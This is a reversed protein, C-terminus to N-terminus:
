LSPNQVCTMGGKGEGAGFMCTFGPMSPPNWQYIRVNWGSTEVLYVQAEVTPAGMNSLDDWLGAKAPPSIVSAVAIVVMVLITIVLVEAFRIKNKKIM